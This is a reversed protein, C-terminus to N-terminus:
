QVNAKPVPAASATNATPQVQQASTAAPTIGNVPKAKATITDTLFKVLSDIQEDTLPGGENKAFAPMMSGPRGSRTWRRWHDENTPHRLNKLDPVMAARHVSDHCIGCAAVYLQEGTKNVAPEVHCKACEGKFVVQRDALAMQMNKLRDADIGGAIPPAGAPAPMNARVILTKTGTTSDVMVAKEISGMKGALSMTVPIEGSMGPDLQWPMTPLRAVTCGCSTRVSNITVIEPSMNTVWFSFPVSAQGAIVNTDKRETDWALYSAPQTPQAPAQYAPLAVPNQPTGVQHVPRLPQGPIPAFPQGPRGNVGAPAFTARQTQAPVALPTQVDPAAQTVPAIPALQPVRIPRFSIPPTQPIPPPAPPASVPAQAWAAATAVLWVVIGTRFDKM